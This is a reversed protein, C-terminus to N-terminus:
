INELLETKLWEFAAAQDYSIGPRLLAEMDGTFDRDNEKEEINLLFEKKSPSRNGTTFTIYEKFSNIIKKLDLELNLRAYNLDFM